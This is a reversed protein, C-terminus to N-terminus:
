RAHERYAARKEEMMQRGGMRMYAAVEEDYVADFAEAPATVVKVFIEDDMERLLSGYKIESELIVKFKPTEIADKMAYELSKLTFSEYRPDSVVNARVNLEPDDPGVFKGNLIICYDFYNYLMRKSEENDLMVPLGDRWEYTVGPIGNQLATYHEPQAMWNLYKVAAEANKSYAPVMIYMGTKELIPKPTRGDRSVFPDIPTLVANPDRAQLDALYGMYVPENTNTTGGGVRGNVM